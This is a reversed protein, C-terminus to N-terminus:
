ETVEVKQSKVKGGWGENIIKWHRSFAKLTKVIRKRDLGKLTAGASCEPMKAVDHKKEM